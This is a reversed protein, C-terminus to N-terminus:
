PMPQNHLLQRDPAPAADSTHHEPRATSSAPAKRDARDADAEVLLGPSTAVCVRVNKNASMSPEAAIPRRSPFAYM